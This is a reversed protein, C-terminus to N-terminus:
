AEPRRETWVLELERRAVRWGDAERRYRDRYRIGWDLRGGEPLVHYAVCYVEGEAEDGSIAVTQQHMCHQTAVYREISRMADRIRDRGEVRFDPGILVANASFVRDVLGYDRDDPIRAYRDALERLALRDAVENGEM